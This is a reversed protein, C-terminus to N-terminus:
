PLDESAGQFSAALPLLLAPPYLTAEGNAVFVPKDISSVREFCPTTRHGWAVRTTSRGAPDAGLSDLTSPSRAGARVLRAAFRIDRRAARIPATFFVASTNPPSTEPKRCRRDGGAGFRSNRESRRASSALVVKRRQRRPVLPSRRPWSAASSFGSCISRGSEWADIVDIRTSRWHRDHRRRGARAAVGRTSHDVSALRPM